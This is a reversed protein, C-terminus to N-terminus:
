ARVNSSSRLAAPLSLGVRQGDVVDVDVAVAKRATQAVELDHLM